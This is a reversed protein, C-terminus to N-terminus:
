APEHTAHANGHGKPPTIIDFIRSTLTRTTSKTMLATCDDPAADSEIVLAIGSKAAPDTKISPWPNRGTPAAPGRGATNM